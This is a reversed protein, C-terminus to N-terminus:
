REQSEVRSKVLSSSFASLAPCSNFINDRVARILNPLNFYSLFVWNYGWISKYIRVPVFNGGGTWSIMLDFRPQSSLEQHSPQTKGLLNCYQNSM